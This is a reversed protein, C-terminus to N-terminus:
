LRFSVSGTLELSCGSYDSTATRVRLALPPGGLVVLAEVGRAATETGLSPDNRLELPTPLPDPLETSATLPRSKRVLAGEAAYYCVLTQWVPDGTVPDYDVRGDRKRATVFVLGDADHRVGAAKASGLESVMRRVALMAQEQVRVSAESHSYYRQSLVLGSYAIGLVILLLSTHTALEVLTFGRPRTTRM